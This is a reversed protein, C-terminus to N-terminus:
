LKAMFEAEKAERKAFETQIAKVRQLERRGLQDTHVEDPGDAIRLTRNGAWMYALPTDQSVGMAGFSQVARDVVTLAVTPATVKAKAIDVLAAKPGQVDMKHAAALVLLRAADIEIRSKAINANMTGHERLLKGFTRKSEDAARYIMWRLAQEAVGITRMCHHIRGPGLRGQIIEFGRGEGLVINSRPVRCNTFQIECHGHPADDYGYVRMPRVVVSGPTNSPVIIVSQQRYVDNTSVNGQKDVIKGMVLWVKCRPDGAGSAWWKTGNLVYEDREEDVTIKLQINRADSSAVFRETMCFASRIKGELLPELWEKKQAENAYRAFVEMNGTDPAACNMAEPATHSRGMQECMLGYELNTFGAGESYYSPLFLNWLGRAKAKAKLEEIVPPVSKWREDGNRIQAHYLKDAPICEEEVFTKVKILTELGRQSVLPKVIDPIEVSM